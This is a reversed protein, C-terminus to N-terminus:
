SAALIFDVRSAVAARPIECLEYGCETYAEAIAVYTREAEQFTQKREADHEYIDAWPPAIFARRNYRLVDLAKRVHAPVPQGVLRLYGLVDPVGRDFYVTGPLASAAHYNRIEHSLMMEAFLAPDVWPLARGGTSVQDKIIQRGVEDSSQFGADKLAALLTSKGSGPGGTIIFFHEFGVSMAFWM